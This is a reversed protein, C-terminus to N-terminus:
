EEAGGEPAVVEADIVGASDLGALIRDRVYRLRDLDPQGGELVLVERFLLMVMDAFAGFKGAHVWVNRRQEM